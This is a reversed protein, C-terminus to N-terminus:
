RDYWSVSKLGKWDTEWFLPKDRGFTPTREYAPEAYERIRPSLRRMPIKRAAKPSPRKPGAAKKPSPRKPSVAKKQPSSRSSSTSTRYSYDSYEYSSDEKENKVGKHVTCKTSGPACKNKCQVGKLTVGRCRDSM